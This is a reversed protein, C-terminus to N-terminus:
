PGTSGRSALSSTSMHFRAKLCAASPLPDMSTWSSGPLAVGDPDLPQLSFGQDGPLMQLSLCSPLMVTSISGLLEVGDGYDHSESLERSRPQTAAPEPGAANALEELLPAALAVPIQVGMLSTVATEHRAVSGGGELGELVELRKQLFDTNYDVPLGCAHDRFEQYKELVTDCKLEELQLVRAAQLRLTRDPRYFILVLTLQVAGMIVGIACNLWIFPDGKYLGYVLWMGCNSLSALVYPVSFLAASRTRIVTPLNLIPSVYLCAVVANAGLGAILLRSERDPLVMGIAYGELLLLLFAAFLLIEVQGRVKLQGNSVALELVTAVSYLAMLFGPMVSWWLWPDSAALAYGLWALANILQLTLTTPNLTGLTRLIRANRIAPICSAYISNSLFIGLVPVGYDTIYDM